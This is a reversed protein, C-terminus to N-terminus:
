LVSKMQKAVINAAVRPAVRSLGDLLRADSGIVVRFAGKEVARVIKQATREPSTARVKRGGTDIMQVGSNGSINTSINGPFVVTVAVNTDVLEQYLGETFQKVAGKTASYFAQGAFSVLGSLSSVNVLSAAPRKRLEPLFALSVNVTGWFNVNVIQELEDRTLEPIRIFRHVIGALSIVGDVRGHATLVDGVLADVAHRDTVDVVHTSLRETAAGALASTEELRSVDRDIAAVRAGSDLLQLAVQRGIGNGGGTVVFVNGPIRM